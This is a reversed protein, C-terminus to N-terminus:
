YRNQYCSVPSAICRKTQYQSDWPNLGGFPDKYGSSQAPRQYSNYAPSKYNSQRNASLEAAFAQLAAFNADAVKKREMYAYHELAQQGWWNGKAAAKQYWEMAADQDAEVGLGSDYMLGIEYESQADGQAAAKHFWTLADTYSQPVGRGYYYLYGLRWQDYARDQEAAMRYYKAAEAFSQTVGWGEEYMAALSSQAFMQGQDAAEGFWYAAANLDRPGGDGKFLAYGLASQGNAYGGIASQRFWRLGEAQNQDIGRGEMFFGGVMLQAQPNGTQLGRLYQQFAKANSRPTGRATEFMYGLNVQAAGETEAIFEASKQFWHLATQYSREVGIGEFYLAGLANQASPHGLNAKELWAAAADAYDGKAYAATADSSPLFRSIPAAGARTLADKADDNGLMASIRFWRVAREQSVETGEGKAHMLGANYAAVAHGLDGAKEFWELATSQSAEAGLGQLYMQGVSNRAKVHGQRAAKEFWDLALSYDQQVGAGVRYMDALNYQAEVIGLRASKKYWYAARATNQEVGQGNDFMVAVNLMADPDDKQALAIFGEYATEYDSQNYATLADLYATQSTAVPAAIIMLFTTLVAYFVKFTM